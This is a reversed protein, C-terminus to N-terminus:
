LVYAHGGHANYLTFFNPFSKDIAQADEIIVPALCKQAAVAAAMVIRHDNASDAKGGALAPKGRIWLGDDTQRIDAGLSQLLAETSSLRDSEKLRLRSANCIHTDGSATAALAALVPVLDPIPDADISSFHLASRDLRIADNETHLVAGADQLIQLFARDGQLSDPRLGSVAFGCALLAAGNSWDGEAFHAGGRLSAPRITYTCDNRTISAGFQRLVDVTIDLYRASAVPPLLTLTSPAHLSVLAFLLGTAYQSSVDGRLTYNGPQLTGSVRIPFGGDVAVGHTRMASLLVENPRQPLKGSGTFVADIGQASVLPLLFRLTSGSEGCDLTVSRNWREPPKVTWLDGDQQILVGLARLCRVTAAIDASTDTVTLRSESEALAAALLLRHVFSKSAPAPVVGTPRCPLIQVNM